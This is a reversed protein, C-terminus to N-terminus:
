TGQVTTVRQLRICSKFPWLLKKVLMEESEVFM